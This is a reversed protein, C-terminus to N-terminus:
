KAALRLRRRQLLLMPALASIFLLTSPEPIPPVLPNIFNDEFTDDSAGFFKVDANGNNDIRFGYVYQDGLAVSTGEFFKSVSAATFWMPQNQSGQNFHDNSNRYGTNVDHPATGQVPNPLGAATRNSANRNDGFLLSNAGLIPNGDVGLPTLQFYTNGDREAIVLYDTAAFAHYYLIDFDATVSNPLNNITSDYFLYNMLNTNLSANVVAAEYAAVGDDQIRIKVAGQDATNYVGVGGFSDTSTPITGPPVNAPNFNNNRIVANASNYFEINIGGTLTMTEVFIAQNRLSVSTDQTGNTSYTVNTIPVNNHGKRIEVVQGSVIPSVAFILSLVTLAHLHRNSKQGMSIQMDNVDKEHREDPM